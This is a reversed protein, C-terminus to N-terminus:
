VAIHFVYLCLSFFILTFGVYLLRDKRRIIEMFASFTFEEKYISELSEHMVQIWTNKWRVLLDQLSLKTFENKYQIHRTKNSDHTLTTLIAREMPELYQFPISKKKIEDMKKKDSNESSVKLTRPKMPFDVKKYNNIDMDFRKIPKTNTNTNPKSKTQTNTPNVRSPPVDTFFDM